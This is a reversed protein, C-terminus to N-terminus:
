HSQITETEYIEFGRAQYNHLASPHDNSCTHVWVRQTGQWNWASQIAQSLLYGGMGQGIFQPALGFYAIQTSGKAQLLEYYGAIAGGKYAVWTRLSKQSVYQRWQEATWALRDTWEWQAGVLAYLFRNLEFQAIECEQISLGKSDTKASLADPSRMELYYITVSNNM